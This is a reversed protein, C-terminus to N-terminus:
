RISCCNGLSNTALEIRTQPEMVSSNGRIIIILPKKNFLCRNQLNKTYILKFLTMFIFLLSTLTFSIGNNENSCKLRM